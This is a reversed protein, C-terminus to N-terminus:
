SQDTLESCRRELQWPAVGVAWSLEGWGGAAEADALLEDATVYGAAVQRRQLDDRAALWAAHQRVEAPDVGVADAVAVVATEGLEFMQAFRFTDRWDQGGGPQRRQWWDLGQQVNPIEARWSLAEVVLEVRRCIPRDDPPAPQQQQQRPRRKPAAQRQELLAQVDLAELCLAMAEPQLFCLHNVIVEIMEVDLEMIQLAREGTVVRNRYVDGTRHARSALHEILEWDPAPVTHLPQLDDPLEIM